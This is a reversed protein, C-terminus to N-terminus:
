QLISTQIACKSIFFTKLKRGVSVQPLAEMILTHTLSKSKARALKTRSEETLNATTEIDVLWNELQMSNSGSFTTIDQILTNAFTTQKKPLGYHKGTNSCSMM